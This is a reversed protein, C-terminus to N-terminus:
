SETGYIEATHPASGKMGMPLLVKDTARPIAIYEETTLARRTTM